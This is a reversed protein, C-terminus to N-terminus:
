NSMRDYCDTCASGMSANMIHSRWHVICGCDLKWGTDSYNPDNDRRAKAVALKREHAEGDRIKDYWDSGHRLERGQELESIADQVSTLGLKGHYTGPYKQDFKVAADLFYKERGASVDIYNGNSLKYQLRM